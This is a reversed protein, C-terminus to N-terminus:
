ADKPIIINLTHNETSLIAPMLDIVLTSETYGLARTGNKIKPYNKFLITNYKPRFTNVLLAEIENTLEPANLETSSSYFSDFRDDDEEFSFKYVIPEIGESIGVGQFPFIKKESFGPIELMLLAIEFPAKLAQTNLAEEITLINQMKEHGTLREWVNRPFSKGIYHVKYNVYDKVNGVMDLKINRALYEYIFKQPSFWYLFEKDKNLLKFAAVDNFPQNIDPNKKYFWVEVYLKEDQKCFGNEFPAFRCCLPCNGTEDIIEFFIAGEKVVLKKFYLLPRQIIFYITCPNILVKVVEESKM